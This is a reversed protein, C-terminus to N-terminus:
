LYTACHLIIPWWFFIIISTTRWANPYQQLWNAVCRFAIKLTKKIDFQCHAKFYYILNILQVRHPNTWCLYDLISVFHKCTYTEPWPSWHQTGAETHIEMTSNNPAQSLADCIRYISHRYISCFNFPLFMSMEKLEGLNLYLILDLKLVSSVTFLLFISPSRPINYFCIRSEVRFLYSVMFLNIVPQIHERM